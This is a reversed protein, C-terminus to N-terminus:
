RAHVGPHGAGRSEVVGAVDWGPIVPFITEILGDLGGSMVKWDVPNVSVREVRIM